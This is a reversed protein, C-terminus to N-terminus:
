GSTISSGLCISVAFAAAIVEVRLEALLAAFVNAVALRASLTKSPAERLGRHPM